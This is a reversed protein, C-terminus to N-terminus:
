ESVLVWVGDMREDIWLCLQLTSLEIVHAHIYLSLSTHTHTHTYKHIQTLPHQV